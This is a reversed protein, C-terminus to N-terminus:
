IQSELTNLMTKINVVKQHLNYVPEMEKSLEKAKLLLLEEEKAAKDISDCMKDITDNYTQLCCVSAASIHNLSIQLQKNLRYFDKAVQTAERELDFLVKKFTYKSM